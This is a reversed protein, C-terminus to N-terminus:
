LSFTLAVSFKTGGLAKLAPLKAAVNLMVPETAATKVEAFGKCGVNLIVRFSTSVPPTLQVWGPVGGVRVAWRAHGGGVGSLPGSVCKKGGPEVVMGGPGLRVGIVKRALVPETPLSTMTEKSSPSGSRGRIEAQNVRCSW